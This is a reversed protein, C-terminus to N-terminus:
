KFFLYNQLFMFKLIHMERTLYGGTTFLDVFFNSILIKNRKQTNLNLWLGSLVLNQHWFM